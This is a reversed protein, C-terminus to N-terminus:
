RPALCAALQRLARRYRRTFAPDDASSGTVLRVIQGFVVPFSAAAIILLLAMDPDIELDLRGAAQEGALHDSIEAYRRTREVEGIPPGTATLAEWVILRVFSEDAALAEFHRVVFEPLPYKGEALASARQAVHHRLVEDYLQEKSGFYVYLMRPSSGAREAISDVRAGALGKEAFEELAGDLIRRRTADADRAM